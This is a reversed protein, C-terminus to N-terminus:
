RASRMCGPTPDVKAMAQLRTFAVFLGLLFVEIMAWPGVAARLRAMFVLVAHSLGTRLGGIVGLTLGLRLVPAVLTTVLVAIALVPMNQEEFAVPLHLLSTEREQGTLRIHMLPWAAAVVMLVLAAAALAFTATLSNRRRRRLVADCRECAAVQGPRLPGIAQFLGCDHCEHLEEAGFGGRQVHASM